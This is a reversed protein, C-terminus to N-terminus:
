GSRETSSFPTLRSLMAVFGAHDAGLTAFFTADAAEVAQVAQNALASGRNTVVLARARADSPHRKREILGKTELTRLVQSTMMADTGAHDALARQTVPENAQLWTLSALLVFQVHTLDLPALTARQAAQWTNTVRWLLFGASQDPAAHRTNLGAARKTTTSM